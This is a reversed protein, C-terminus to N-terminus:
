PAVIEPHSDWIFLGVIDIPIPNLNLIKGPKRQNVRTGVQPAVGHLTPSVQPSTVQPSKRCIKTKKQPVRGLALLKGKFIPRKGRFSFPLNM